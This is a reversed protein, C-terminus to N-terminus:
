GGCAVQLMETVLGPRLQAIFVQQTSTGHGPAANKLHATFEVGIISEDWQPMRACDDLHWHTSVHTTQGPDVVAPLGDGTIVVDSATSAVKDVIWETTGAAEITFALDFGQPDSPAGIPQTTDIATAAIQSGPGACQAARQRMYTDWLGGTLPYAYDHGADPNQPTSVSYRITLPLVPLYTLDDCAYPLTVPVSVTSGANMGEAPWVSASGIRTGVADWIEASVVELPATANNTLELGLVAHDAGDSAELTTSGLRVKYLDVNVQSPTPIPQPAAERRGSTPWAAVTLAGAAALVGLIRVPRPLRGFRLGAYASGDITERESRASNPGEGPLPDDDVLEVVIELEDPDPDGAQDAESAEGGFDGWGSGM